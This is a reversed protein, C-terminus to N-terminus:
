GAPEYHLAKGEVFPLDAWKSGDLQIMEEKLASFSLGKLPSSSLRAM